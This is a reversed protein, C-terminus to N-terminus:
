NSAFVKSAKIRRRLSRSWAFAAGAGALPLPGPVETVFFGGFVRPQGSGGLATALAGATPFTGVGGTLGPTSFPISGLGINFVGGPNGGNYTGEIIFSTVSSLSVPPAFASAFIGGVSATNFTGSPTLTFDATRFVGSGNVDNGQFGTVTGGVTLPSGSWLGILQNTFTVGASIGSVRAGVNSFSFAGSGGSIAAGIANSFQPFQGFGDPDILDEILSTVDISFSSGPLLTGCNTGSGSPGGGTSGATGICPAAHSPTSALLPSAGLLVGTILLATRPTMALCIHNLRM